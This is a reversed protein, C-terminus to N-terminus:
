SKAAKRAKRKAVAKKRRELERDKMARVVNPVAKAILAQTKESLIAGLNIWHQLRDEKISMYKDADTEHPNYWGLTEVYRGDRPNRSETVVMRYFPRHTRGQQRLRIKLAM